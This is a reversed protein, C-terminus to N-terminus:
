KKEQEAQEEVEDLMVHIRDVGRMFSEHRRLEEKFLNEDSVTQKAKILHEIIHRLSFGLFLFM